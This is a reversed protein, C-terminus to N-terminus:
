ISVERTAGELPPAKHAAGALARMKAQDVIQGNSIVYVPPGHFRLAEVVDAQDLVV